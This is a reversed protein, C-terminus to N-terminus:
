FASLIDPTTGRVLPPVPAVVAATALTYKPKPFTSLVESAFLGM